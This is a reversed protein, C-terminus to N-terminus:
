IMYQDPTLQVHDLQLGFDPNYLGDATQVFLGPFLEVIDGHARMPEAYRHHIRVIYRQLKRMLWRKPGENKLTNLWFDITRGKKDPALYRVVVSVQDGDEILKFNEAATRFNVALAELNKGDMRLDHRIQKKDLDCAYYLKSFYANFLSRDLPDTAQGHLVSKCANAGKLLLGKPPDKPPVFVVVKGHDLKGERNCRGAAQAISDLGALARYVVPFDIDVGAEVLQTSVV